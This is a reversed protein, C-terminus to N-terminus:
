EKYVGMQVLTNIYNVKAQLNDGFTNLGALYAKQTDNENCWAEFKEIKALLPAKERQDIEEFKKFDGTFRAYEKGYALPNAYKNIKDNLKCADRFVGRVANKTNKRPNSQAAFIDRGLAFTGAGYSQVGYDVGYDTDNVPDILVEVLQVNVTPASGYYQAGFANQYSDISTGQGLLRITVVLPFQRGKAKDKYYTLPMSVDPTSGREIGEVIFRKKYHNVLEKELEEKGAVMDESDNQCQLVADDVRYVIVVKKSPEPEAAFAVCSLLMLGMLMTLIKKM